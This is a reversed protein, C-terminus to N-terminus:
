EVGFLIECEIRSECSLSNSILCAGEAKILLKEAKEKSETTPIFLRIKSMINTFQVKREVKDLEGDSVCEISIWELKSARAIARFSLVLCNSISAM